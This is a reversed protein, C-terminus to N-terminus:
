GHALSLLNPFQFSFGLSFLQSCSFHIIFPFWHESTFSNWILFTKQVVGEMVLSCECIMSGWGWTKPFNFGFLNIISTIPSFYSFVAELVARGSSLTSGQQGKWEEPNVELAFVKTRSWISTSLLPSIPPPSLHLCCSSLEFGVPQAPAAGLVWQGWAPFLPPLDKNSPFLQLKIRM